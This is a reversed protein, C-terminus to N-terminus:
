YKAAAASDAAAAARDRRDFENILVAEDSRLIDTFESCLTTFREFSDGQRDAAMVESRRTSVLITQMRTLRRLAEPHEEAEGKRVRRRTKKNAIPTGVEAADTLGVQVETGHQKITHEQSLISERDMIIGAMHEQIDAIVSKRSANSSSRGASDLKRMLAEQDRLEGQVKDLGQRLDRESVGSLDAGAASTALCLLACLLFTMRTTM